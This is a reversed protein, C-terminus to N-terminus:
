RTRSIGTSSGRVVKGNDMLADAIGLRLEM